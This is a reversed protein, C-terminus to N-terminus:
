RHSISAITGGARGHRQQRPQQRQQRQQGRRLRQQERPVRLRPGRERQVAHPREPVAGGELRLEAEGVLPERRRQVRRAVDDVHGHGGTEVVDGRYAQSVSIGM